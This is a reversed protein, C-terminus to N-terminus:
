KLLLMKRTQRFDGAQITYIYMGASVPQGLDNTANWQVSKVGALQNTNVLSKIQRGMIDTIRVSVFENAPLTYDIRTVPNFPNPHNQYLIYSLPMNPSEKLSSQDIDLFEFQNISQEAAQYVQNTLGDQIIAIIKIQDTNWQSQDLDFSGSFTQNGYSSDYSLSDTFWDRVVNRAFALSDGSGQYDWTTLISDEVIFVHLSHGYFLSDNENAIDVSYTITSGEKTGGISIDYDTMNASLSQFASDYRAFNEWGINAGVLIGTGNFVETPIGAIDYLSGRAGVCNGLQYYQCDAENFYQSGVHWQISVIQGPNQEYLENMTLSAVPCFPCWEAATFDEVFVMQSYASQNEFIIESLVYHMWETDIENNAYQLIGEQDVIFDRPYPSGDNPLYYDNYTDGGQVGGPSGPDFLIPFTLSNEEIFNNIQNQNSTNIIGVVLVEDQPYTQWITTEM